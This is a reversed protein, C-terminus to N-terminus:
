TGVYVTMAIKNGLCKIIYHDEIKTKQPRFTSWIYSVASSIQGSRFLDNLNISDRDEKNLHFIIM